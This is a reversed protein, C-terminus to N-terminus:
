DLAPLTEGVLHIASAFTPSTGGLGLEEGLLLSQVLCSFNRSQHVVLSNPASSGVGGKQFVPLQRLEGLLELGESFGDTIGDGVVEIKQPGFM